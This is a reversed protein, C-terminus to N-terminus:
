SRDGDIINRRITEAFPLSCTVGHLWGMPSMGLCAIAGADDWEGKDLKRRIALVRGDTKYRECFEHVTRCVALLNWGRDWRGLRGGFAHHCELPYIGNHMMLEPAYGPVKVTRVGFLPFYPLLEDEFEHQMYTERFALDEAPRSNTASRRKM